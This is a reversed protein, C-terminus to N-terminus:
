SNDYTNGYYFSKIALYLALGGILGYKYFSNPNTFLKASNMAGQKFGKFGKANM